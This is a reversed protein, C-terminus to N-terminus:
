VGGPELHALYKLATVGPLFFYGGGKMTVFSQLGMVCRRLPSAPLTLMGSDLNSAVPDREDYMRGSKESNLWSQQIFEYQRGLHANLAIFLLGRDTPPEGDQYGPGYSIGRRLLRHRRSMNLSQVPEAAFTDRPNARRVHSTVPCGMGAPDASAFGFTNSPGHPGLAPAEHVGPELPVGNTWRGLLKAKLWEKRKADDACNADALSQHEEIFREFAHVDQRLKRLVLYSGNLGLDRREPDEASELRGHPDRSAPVTPSSSREAYENEHGLIFEGPAVPRDYDEPARKSEM